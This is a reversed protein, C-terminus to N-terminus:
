NAVNIIRSNQSRQWNKLFVSNNHKKIMKFRILNQKYNKKKLLTWLITNFKLDWLIQM